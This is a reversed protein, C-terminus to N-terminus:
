ESISWTPTKKLIRVQEQVVLARRLEKPLDELDKKNFIRKYADVNVSLFSSGAKKECFSCYKKYEAEM